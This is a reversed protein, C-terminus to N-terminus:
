YQFDKFHISDVEFAFPSLTKEHRLLLLKKLIKKGSSLMWTETNEWNGRAEAHLRVVLIPDVALGPNQVARHITIRRGFNHPFM